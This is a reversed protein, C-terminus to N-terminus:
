NKPRIGREAALILEALETFGEQKARGAPTM